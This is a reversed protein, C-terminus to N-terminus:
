DRYLEELADRYKDAVFDRRVKLTPTLEGGSVSFVQDTIAFRKITEYRALKRNCGKIHEDILARTMPDWALGQREGPARGLRKGVEEENIAILAVIFKRGDGVVMANKVLPSSALVEEIMQPAVNKGGATVIMEKKRGTLRLFGDRSYEGLDGTRFYGESDFAALTEAPLNLYERFVMPGKLLIEGDQALKLSVDALPKGVTGFKYDDQVNVTVAAFTETLGYGELVKIGAAHFFRTTEESLKAGGSVFCFLRGGLRARLRRFVLTDALAYKIRLSASIVRSQKKIDIFDGGVKLAWAAARRALPGSRDLHEMVREQIKELMRPVGCVFHPRAELYNQALMELSEAYALVPGHVMHYFQIMRGLVHALPLALLGVHRPTFRFALGASRVEAMIMGHTIVVGKLRGTTGSTYVYTAPDDPGLGRQEFEAADMSAGGAAKELAEISHSGTGDRLGIILMEEAIKGVARAREFLEVVADDEVIAAKPRSDALIHAIRDPPLACYVPVSIAGLAMIALDAITWEIRTTVMIAVRDGKEIGLGSLGAALALVRSKMESWSVGKYRGSSKVLACVKGGMYDARDFFASIATMHRKENMEGM